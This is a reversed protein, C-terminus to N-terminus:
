HDHEGVDSMKANIFFAGKVAIREKPSIDKIPTIATYGMDSAGKVVEVKEFRVSGNATKGASVFIYYKGDAEAIAENPVAPATSRDLSVIGTVNMGDILGKKNGIVTCHVAVTRSDSEFSSGISYIEADYETDPINALKFHVIQGVQLKPLDKEFVKLDLHLSTNDVIEALALSTDVYSGIQADIRSIVGSIPATVALGNRLNQNTVSSPNIGMMQLQRAAAARETTLSRLEAAASELNKRAGADNNYLEQQRRHEKEAFAIRSQATLYQEQIRIYEPNVITAIVQGKRVFNGEQIPLSTVTGAFLATVTAKNRNPVQLVGNAKLTNTLEKMEITGLEIGVANMQELTLETVTAGAESEEHQESTETQPETKDTSSTCSNLLFFTSVLIIPISKM